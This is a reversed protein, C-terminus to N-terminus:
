SGHSPRCAIKHKALQPKHYSRNAYVAAFVAGFSFILLYKKARREVRGQAVFYKQTLSECKWIFKGHRILSSKNDALKVKM